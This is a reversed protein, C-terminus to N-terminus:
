ARPHAREFVVRLRESTVHTYIQTTAISSHGLMEQVSRLDAGGELLHTAMAHRLGHPGLDPATGALGLSRHVIRRVVRPDIRAGAREGIFLARGSRATVLEDRRALWAAVAELAPVGVPVYREKDGKGSLRVLGRTVDISDLDLGTLEFVRCGSAYLLEVMARDRRTVPTDTEGATAALADMVEAAEKESITAPLARVVKASRLGAAPDAAILGLSALWAFFVKAASTRRQITARALGADAMAALWARLDRVTVAAVDDVGRGALFEALSRLDADYALRTRPARRVALFDAFPALHASIEAVM